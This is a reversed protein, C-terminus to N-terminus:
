AVPRPATIEHIISYVRPQTVELCSFSSCAALWVLRFKKHIQPRVQLNISGTALGFALIWAPAAVCLAAHKAAPGFLSSSSAPM